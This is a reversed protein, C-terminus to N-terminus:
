FFLISFFEEFVFLCVPNYNSVHPLGAVLSSLPKANHSTQQQRGVTNMRRCEEFLSDTPHVYWRKKEYRQCMLDKMRGEDKTDVDMPIRGDYLGLWVKRCFENGRSKIFEMEDNSFSAMSISKVRHPPNLGRLLGSCATCVFSGIMMNVYTPGRQNCDFCHKNHLLAVIERLTKLNNEEEQKKRVNSAM